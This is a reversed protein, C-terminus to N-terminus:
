KAVWRSKFAKDVQQMLLGTNEEVDKKLKKNMDKRFHHCESSNCQKCFYDKEFKRMKRLLDDCSENFTKEKTM